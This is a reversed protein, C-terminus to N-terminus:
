TADLLRALHGIAQTWGELHSDRSAKDALGTQRVTVRTQDGVAELDVTVRPHHEVVGNQDAWGHTFILREPPTLTEFVGRLRFVSGDSARYDCAYAGGERVDFSPNEITCGKPFFWRALLDPETWAKWVRARPADLLREIVLETESPAQPPQPTMM